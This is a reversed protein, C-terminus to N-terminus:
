AVSKSPTADEDMCFIDPRLDARTIEGPFLKEIAIARTVPVLRKEACWIQVAQPTIELMEALKSQSGALSVAKHISEM